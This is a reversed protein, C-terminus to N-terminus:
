FTAISPTGTVETIQVQAHFNYGPETHHGKSLQLHAFWRSGTWDHVCVYSVAARAIARLPSFIAVSDDPPSSGFNVTLTAQYTMGPDEAEMFAVAYDGAYIELLEDRGASIFTVELEPERNYAVALAPTENTVFILECGEPQCTVSATAATYASQAFDTRTVLVRYQVPKTRPAEYDTFASTAETLGYAITRWTLGLDETRQVEYRLFSAGLATATWALRVAQVAGIGCLGSSALALRQLTATLGAPTTPVTFAQFPMDYNTQAVGGVLATDTTGNFSAVGGALTTDGLLVARWGSLLATTDATSLEIYYRTANVLAAAFGTATVVQGYVGVSGVSAATLSVTNGMQVNDSVRKIKVSLPQTAAGAYLILAVSQFTASAPATFQQTVVQTNNIGPRHTADNALYYALSDQSVAPASTMVLLPVTFGSTQAAFDISTVRNYNDLRTYGSLVGPVVGTAATLVNTTAYAITPAHPSYTVLPASPRRAVVTFDGSAPKAWTAGGAPTGFATTTLVGPLQTAGIANVWSAFAVRNETPQSVVALDVAYVIIATVGSTGAARLRIAWVGSSFGQIDTPTWPLQTKPNIEGMDLEYFGLGGLAITAGPPKYFSGSAVHVLGVTITNDGNAGFALGWFRVKVRLPRETGPYGSSGARIDYNSLTGSQITAWDATSVAATGEDIDQFVNVNSGATKVWGAGVAQDASVPYVRTTEVAALVESGKPIVEFLVIDQGTSNPDLPGGSPTPGLTSLQITKLQNITEASRSRFVQSFPAVSLDWAGAFTPLWEEGVILPSNPNYNNGAM